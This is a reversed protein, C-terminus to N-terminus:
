GHQGAILGDLITELEEPRALAANGAIGSWYSVGRPLAIATGNASRSTAELVPLSAWEMALRNGFQGRSLSGALFRKIGRGELLKIAMQDQTAQTFRTTARDLGLQDSVGKLTARIIQYRGAASSAAGNVSTYRHQWDLVSDLTMSTLKPSNQNAPMRYYANYNGGSEYKAIFDLLDSVAKKEVTVPGTEGVLELDDRANGAEEVLMSAIMTVNGASDQRVETTYGELEFMVALSQADERSSFGTYEKIIRVTM